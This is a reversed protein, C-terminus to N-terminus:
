NRIYITVNGITKALRYNQKIFEDVPNKHNYAFKEVVAYNLIACYPRKDALQNAAEKFQAASQQNTILISYPIQNLSRLEFYLGPLFPGAYINQNLPCAQKIERIFHNTISRNFLPRPLAVIAVIILTLTIIIKDRQRQAISELSIAVLIFFPFLAQFLHSADARPLSAASLVLGFLLLFLKINMQRGKDDIFAPLSLGVALALSGILLALSVANTELYHNLPFIILSEYLLSPPWLMLVFAIPILSSLIFALSQKFGLRRSLNMLLLYATLILWAALGKHQLFLIAAASSLGSLIYYSTRRKAASIFYLAWILATLNFANHNILPWFSSSVIFLAPPLFRWRKLNLQRGLQYLGIAGLAAISLGLVAASTFSVESLRWWVALLYPALPAIFEFNDLYMIRGNIINWAANLVVGEDSDLQHQSHLLVLGAFLPLWLYHKKILQKISARM